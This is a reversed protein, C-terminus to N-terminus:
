MLSDVLNIYRQYNTFDSLDVEDDRLDDGYYFEHETGTYVHLLFAANDYGKRHDWADIVDEVANEIDEEDMTKVEEPTPIKIGQVNSFYYYIIENIDNSYFLIDTKPNWNEYDDFFMSVNILFDEVYSLHPINGRYADKYLIYKAVPIEFKVFTKKDIKQKDYIDYKPVKITVKEKLDKHLTNHHWVEIDKNIKLKEILFNNITKM